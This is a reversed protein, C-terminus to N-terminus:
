TTNIRFVEKQLAFKSAAHKASQENHAVVIRAYQAYPILRPYKSRLYVLIILQM